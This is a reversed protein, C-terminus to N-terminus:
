FLSMVHLSLRRCSCMLEKWLPFSPPLACPSHPHPSPPPLLIASPSFHHPPFFSLPFPFFVQLSSPHSPLLFPLLCILHPFPLFPPLTSSPPSFSTHSPHISLFHMNPPLSSPQPFFSPLFFPTQPTLSSLASFYPPLALLPNTPHTPHIPLLSLPHFYFLTSPSSFTHSFTHSPISLPFSPLFTAHPLLSPLLIEPPLNPSLLLLQSGPLHLVYPQRLSAERSLPFCSALQTRM